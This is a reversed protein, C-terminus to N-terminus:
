ATEGGRLASFATRAERIDRAIQSALSDVSDFAIEDRLRRIFNIRITRGLIDGSFDLLHTEVTLPAEGFTPNRGINTVGQHVEGGFEVSVAYVGERPVLEDVPVINATPFGLLPGGRGEGPVVKGCIQYDRGLLRRAEELSGEQVFKRISTSSVLMGDIYVPDVVHVEFGFERGLERLMSINGERGAGFSYDYGVVLESVGIRGVLLDRVFAKASVAAFERTFPVCIIFDVPESAILELKQETPTILPPGNGPKMVKIPHPDFTMVISQGGLARARELVRGFLVRHGRHVGDFNGITLVPRVFPGKIEDLDRIINM